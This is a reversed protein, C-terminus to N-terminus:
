GGAGEPLMKPKNIDEVAEDEMFGFAVEGEDQLKLGALRPKRCSSTWRYYM